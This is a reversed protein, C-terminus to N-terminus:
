ESRPSSDGGSQPPEAPPRAAGQYRKLENRAGVAYLSAPLLELVLNFQRVAEAAQGDRMLAVGLNYRCAAEQKAGLKAEDAKALVGQLAAISEKLRKEKLFCVGQNIRSVYRSFDDIGIRAALEYMKHAPAFNGRRALVNGLDILVRSRMTLLYLLVVFLFPHLLTGTAWYLLYVLATFGLSELAFRTSVSERRLLSLGAFVLVFVLALLLILWPGMEVGM